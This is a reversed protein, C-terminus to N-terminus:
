SHFRSGDVVTQTPFDPLPQGCDLTRVQELTLDKIFDGVYPFEPDDAFAPATDDCKADAVHRDHTVVAFRDETIQVDLELTTVGLELATAFGPAYERHDALIGGRHAEIDLQRPGPAPLRSGV